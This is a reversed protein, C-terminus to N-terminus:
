PPPGDGASSTVARLRWSVLLSLVLLGFGLGVASGGWQAPSAPATLHKTQIALHLTM